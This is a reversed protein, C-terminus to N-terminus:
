CHCLHFQKWFLGARLRNRDLWTQLVVLPRAFPLNRLLMLKCLLRMGELQQRMPEFCCPISYCRVNQFRRGRCCWRPSLKLKLAWSHQVVDSRHSRKCLWFHPRLHRFSQPIIRYPFMFIKGYKGKKTTVNSKIQPQLCKLICFLKKINGKAERKTGNSKIESQMIKLSSGIFQKSKALEVRKNDQRFDSAIASLRQRVTHQVTQLTHTTPAPLYIDLLKSSKCNRSNIVWFSAQSMM